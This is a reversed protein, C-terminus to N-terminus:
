NRLLLGADLGRGFDRNLVQELLQLVSHLVLFLDALHEGIGAHRVGLHERVQIQAKIHGTVLM